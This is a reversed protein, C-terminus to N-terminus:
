EEEFSVAEFVEFMADSRWADIALDAKMSLHGLTTEVNWGRELAVQPLFVAKKGDKAMIIGHKGVVIDRWSGVPKAESLVSVEVTCDTFEDAKLPPFRTDHFAASRAADVVSRYLPEDSKLYGICGRLKGAKKITVFVGYSNEVEGGRVLGSKEVNLGLSAGIANRAEMLLACREDESFEIVMKKVSTKDKLKVMTDDPSSEEQEPKTFDSLGAGLASEQFEPLVFSSRHIQANYYRFSLGSLRVRLPIFDRLPCINSDTALAFSCLGGPYIMNTYNYMYVNAFSRGLDQVLAQQSELDYFPSKADTVLLGDTDLLKAASAYFEPSFTSESSGVPSASDVVILDYKEKTNKVYKVGDEVLVDVKPNDFTKSTWPIRGKCAEIMLPDIEVLRCSIVNQHRIIERVAGGDGGGVVLARKIAPHIFFPVHAIMEHYVFGDRESVMVQGDNFLMRGYGDAEVIDIRQYDSEGSFLVQSIRYRMELIDQHNESAWIQLRKGSKETM